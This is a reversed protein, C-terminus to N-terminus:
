TSHLYSLSLRPPQPGSDSAGAPSSGLRSRRSAQRDKYEGYQISLTGAAPTVPSKDKGTESLPVSM